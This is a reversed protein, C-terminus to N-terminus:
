KRILQQKMELYQERTIEGNVYREDLITLAKESEGAQGRHTLLFYAGVVALVIFFLLIPMGAFMFGWGTGAPCGWGGVMMPGWMSMGLM